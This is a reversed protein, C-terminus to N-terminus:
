IFLADVETEVEAGQARVRNQDPEQRQSIAIAALSAAVAVLLYYAKMPEEEVEFSTQEAELGGLSNDRSKGARM